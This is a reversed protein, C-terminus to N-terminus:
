VKALQNSISVVSHQTKFDVQDTTDSLEEINSVSYFASNNDDVSEIKKDTMFAGKGSLPARENSKLVRGQM